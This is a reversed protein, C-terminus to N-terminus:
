FFAIWCLYAALAFEACTIALFVIPVILPCPGKECEEDDM